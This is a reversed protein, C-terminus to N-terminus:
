LGQCARQREDFLPARVPYDSGELIVQRAIGRSTNFLIPALLNATTKNLDEGVNLVVAVAAESPDELCLDALRAPPLGVEYAPFFARPDVVLFCVDPNEVSQFWKLPSDADPDLVAFRRLEAFGPMPETLHVVRGDDIEIPGFRRTQIEV